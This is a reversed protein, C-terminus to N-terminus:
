ELRVPSAYALARRNAPHGDPGPRENPVDPDAVRVVLWPVRGAAAPVRVTVPAGVPVTCLALVDPSRDGTTMVQVTVERGEWTPGGDVDVALDVVRDARPARAAALRGGMRVADPRAALEAPGPERAGASWAAVVDVRLGPERTAFFRRAALAERVGARSWERVWLGARGRGPQFGWHPTHEDSVGLLGPWWGADLCDLLPPREGRAWGEFLYDLDRNFMELSVFRQVLRPDRAFRGFRLPERGPHNFGALLDDGGPAAAARAIWDQLTRIGTAPAVDVVPTWDPSFWVNVHGLHPTTWEFGRVAAFAGPDEARDALRAAREWGGGDMLSAPMGADASVRRLEAVLREDLVGAADGLGTHDTLAAADLGADRMSAFADEARGFGDSLDSHNHLDAHLLVTGATAPGRLAPGRRAGEGPPRGRRTPRLHLATSGATM